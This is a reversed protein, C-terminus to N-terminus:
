RTRFVVDLGVLGGPRPSHPDADVRAGFNPQVYGVLASTNDGRWRWGAETEGPRANPDNAWGPAGASLDISRGRTTASFGWGNPSWQGAELPPNVVYRRDEELGPRAAGDLPKALARSTQAQATLSLVLALIAGAEAAFRLKLVWRM